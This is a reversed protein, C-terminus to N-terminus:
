IYVHKCTYVYLLIYTHTHIYTHTYLYTYIYWHSSKTIYTMYIYQIYVPKCTNIHTYMYLCTSIHIYILAIIQDYVDYIYVIYLCTKM